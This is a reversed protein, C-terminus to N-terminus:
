WKGKPCVSTALNMLAERLCGCAGCTGDEQVHECSQCVAEWINKQEQTAFDFEEYIHKVYRVGDIIEEEIRM